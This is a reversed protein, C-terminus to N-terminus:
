SKQMHVGASGNNLSLVLRFHFLVSNALIVIHFIVFIVTVQKMFIAKIVMIEHFMNQSGQEPIFMKIMAM